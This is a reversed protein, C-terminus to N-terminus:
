MEELLKARKLDFEEQTILGEDLLAKLNRISEAADKKERTVSGTGLNTKAANYATVMANAVADKVNHIGDTNSARTIVLNWVVDNRSTKSKEFGTIQDLAIVETGRLENTRMLGYRVIVIHKDTLIWYCSDSPGFKNIGSALCIVRDGTPIPDLISTELIKPRDTFAKNNDEEDSSRLLKLHSAIDRHGENKVFAEWSTFLDPRKAKFEEIFAEFEVILKERNERNAERVKKEACDECRSKLFGVKSGCESCTAV